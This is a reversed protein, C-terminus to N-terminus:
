TDTPRELELGVGCSEKKNEEKAYKLERRQQHWIHRHTPDMGPSFLNTCTQISQLFAKILNVSNQSSGNSSSSTPLITNEVTNMSYAKPLKSSHLHSSPLLLIDIGEIFTTCQFATQRYKFILHAQLIQPHFWTLSSRLLTKRYTCPPTQVQIHWDPTEKLYLIM